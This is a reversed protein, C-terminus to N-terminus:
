ASFITRLIDLSNLAGLTPFHTQYYQIIRDLLLSREGRSFRFLHATRFNMRSLLRATAAEGSPLWRGHLPPSTRFIGDVLDFVKGEGYTGWDPEIGMFHALKVLFAIHLNGSRQAPAADLQLIAESIFDFLLVDQQPERLLAALMDAMFLALASKVPSGGPPAQLCRLDRVSLIDRNPRFDAVCQFQALPQTVARLRAANRGAGAPLSIAVRGHTRSYASLISQRDSYRVTRLAVCEITEFMPGFTPIIPSKRGM